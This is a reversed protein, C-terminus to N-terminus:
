NHAYLEFGTFIPPLKKTETEMNLQETPTQQTEPGTTM